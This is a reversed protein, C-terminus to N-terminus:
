HQNCCWCITLLIDKGARSFPVTCAARANEQALYGHSCPWFKTRSCHSTSHAARERPSLAGAVHPEDQTYAVSADTDAEDFTWRPTRLLGLEAEADQQTACVTWAQKGGRSWTKCKAEVTPLAQAPSEHGYSGGRACRLTTCNLNPTLGTCPRECNFCGFPANGTTGPQTGCCQHPSGPRSKRPYPSLILLNLQACTPFVM